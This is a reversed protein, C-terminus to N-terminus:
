ACINTRKAVQRTRECACVFIQLVALDARSPPFPHPSPNLFAFAHWDVKQRTSSIGLLGSGCTTIKNCHELFVVQIPAEVSCSFKGNDDGRSHTHKLNVSVQCIDGLLSRYVATFIESEIQGHPISDCTKKGGVCFATVTVDDSLRRAPLLLSKTHM